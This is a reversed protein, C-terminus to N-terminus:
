GDQKPMWCGVVFGFRTSIAQLAKVAAGFRNSRVFVPALPARLLVYFLILFARLHGPSFFKHRHILAGARGAQFSRRLRYSVTMNRVPVWHFVKIEPDFWFRPANEHIRFFLDSEEGFFVKKGSMGFRADFGGYAELVARPFAMNSGAFGFRSVPPRLFAAEKGWTRMEFDDSFWKPPSTEYWPLIVGGVAVPRPSVEAFARLIRSCWDPSAKADDDLFAVYEGRAERWGRNRAHSLGQQPEKVYRFNPSANVFRSAVAETQDTSANDVVIVEHDTAALDQCCLSVLAEVLLDKRNFTCVVVSLKVAVREVAM